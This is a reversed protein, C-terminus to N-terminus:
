YNRKNITFTVKNMFIPLIKNKHWFAKIGNNLSLKELLYGQSNGLCVCVFEIPKMISFDTKIAQNLSKKYVFM